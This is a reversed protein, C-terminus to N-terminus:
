QRGEDFWWNHLIQSVRYRTLGDWLPIDRIEAARSGNMFSSVAEWADFDNVLTNSGCEVTQPRETSKRYTFCRKKLFAAEEQIGGSDTLIFWSRAMLNVFDLYGLPNIFFLNPIARVRDLLDFRELNSQLRPHAPLIVRTEESIRGILDIVLNLREKDDVNHPRHMTVLAFDENEDPLGIAQPDWSPDLVKVVSDIMINGVNHVRSSNRAEDQILHQYATESPALWINSVSDILIRNLEEPMELDYSRLGAELHAVPIRNRRAALTVAFSADVDGPVVILDPNEEVMKDSCAQSMDGIRRAFGDRQELMIEIDFREIGLPRSIETTLTKAQHQAIYVFKPSCWNQAVLASHLPAMKVFNPRASSVLWINCKRETKM